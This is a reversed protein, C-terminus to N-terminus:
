SKRSMKEPQPEGAAGHGAVIRLSESDLVAVPYREVRAPTLHRFQGHLERVPNRVPNQEGIVGPGLNSHQEGAFNVLSAHM